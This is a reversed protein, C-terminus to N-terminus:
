SPGDAVCALLRWKQVCLFAGSQPGRGDSLPPNGGMPVSAVQRCEQTAVSDAHEHRNFPLPACPGCCIHSLM